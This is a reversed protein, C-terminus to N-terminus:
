YPLGADLIYCSSANLELLTVILDQNAKIYVGEKKCQKFFLKKATEKCNAQVISIGQIGSFDGKFTITYINLETSLTSLKAM